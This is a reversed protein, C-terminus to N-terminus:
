GDSSELNSYISVLRAVVIALFIAGLIAEFIALVMIWRDAPVIDGYGVTTLTTFSFYMVLNWPKYDYDGVVSIHLANPSIQWIM